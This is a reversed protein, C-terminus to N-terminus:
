ELRLVAGSEHLLYARPGDIVVRAVTNPPGARDACRVAGALPMADGLAPLRGAGLFGRAETAPRPRLDAYDVGQPCDEYFPNTFADRGFVVREAQRAALWARDAPSCRPCDIGAVRWTRQWGPPTEAHACAALLLGAAILWRM